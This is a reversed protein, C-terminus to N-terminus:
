ALSSTNLSFPATFSLPNHRLRSQSHGSQKELEVAGDGGDQLLSQQYFLRGNVISFNERRSQFHFCLWQSYVLAIDCM